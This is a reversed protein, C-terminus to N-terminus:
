AEITNRAKNTCNLTVTDYMNRTSPLHKQTAFIIQKVSKKLYCFSHLMNPCAESHLYRQLVVCM